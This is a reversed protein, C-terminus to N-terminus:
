KRKTTLIVWFVKDSSQYSDNIKLSVVMGQSSNVQTSSLTKGTTATVYLVLSAAATLFALLILVVMLWMLRRLADIQQQMELSDYVVEPVPDAEEPDEGNPLDKNKNAIIKGVGKDYDIEEARFEATKEADKTKSHSNGSSQTLGFAQAGDLLIMECQQNKQAEPSRQM